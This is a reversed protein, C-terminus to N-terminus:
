DDPAGALVLTVLMLAVGINLAMDAVNFTPIFWWDIWDVVAGDLFGDGRFVRDGLNGLAGGLILGLAFVEVRRSSRGLVYLLLGVV